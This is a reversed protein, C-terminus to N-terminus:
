PRSANEAEAEYFDALELSEKIRKELEKLQNFEVTEPTEKSVVEASLTM